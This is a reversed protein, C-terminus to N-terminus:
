FLSLSNVCDGRSRSKLEKFVERCGSEAGSKDTFDL